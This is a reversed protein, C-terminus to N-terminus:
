GGRRQRMQFLLRRAQVAVVNPVNKSRARRALDKEGLTALLRLSKAAPTRANEVLAIRLAYIKTWDRSDALIALIEEDTNRDKAVMLIEEESIRPNMLVLRQIHRNPERLLVMRADKNGKLALKIREGMNMDRIQAWLAKEREAGAAPPKSTERVLDDPVHIRDTGAAVQEALGAVEDPNEPSRPDAM